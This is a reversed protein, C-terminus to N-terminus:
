VVALAIDVNGGVFLSYEAFFGLPLSFGLFWRMRINRCNSSHNYICVSVSLSLSPVQFSHKLSPDLEEFFSPFSLTSKMESVLTQCEDADSKSVPPRGTLLEM